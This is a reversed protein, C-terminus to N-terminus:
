TGSPDESRALARLTLVADVENLLAIRAEIAVHRPHGKPLVQVARRLRAAARAAVTPQKRKM